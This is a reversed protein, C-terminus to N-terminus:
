QHKGLRQGPDGRKEHRGVRRPQGHAVALQGHAQAADLNVHQVQFVTDHRDPVPQAVLARSAFQRRGRILTELQRQCGDAQPRGLRRERFPPLEGGLAFM